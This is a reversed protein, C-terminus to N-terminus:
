QPNTSSTIVACLAPIINPDKFAQKLQATAKHIADNDPLTLQSLIHQLDESM